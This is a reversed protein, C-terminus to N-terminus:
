RVLQAHQERPQDALVATSINLQQVRSGTRSLVAKRRMDAPREDGVADTDAENERTKLATAAPRAM